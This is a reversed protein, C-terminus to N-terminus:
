ESMYPTGVEKLDPVECKVVRLIICSCHTSELGKERFALRCATEIVQVMTDPTICV